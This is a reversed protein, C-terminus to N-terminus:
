KAKAKLSKVKQEAVKLVKLWMYEGCTNM